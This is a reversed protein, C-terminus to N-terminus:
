WQRHVPTTGGSPGGSGVPWVLSGERAAQQLAAENGPTCAGGMTESAPATAPLAAEAGPEGGPPMGTQQRKELAEEKWKGDPNENGGEERHPIENELGTLLKRKDAM